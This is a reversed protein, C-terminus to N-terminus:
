CADSIKRPEVSIPRPTHRGDRQELDLEQRLDFPELNPLGLERLRDRPIGAEGQVFNREYREDFFCQWHGPGAIWEIAQQGRVALRTSHREARQVSRHTGLM